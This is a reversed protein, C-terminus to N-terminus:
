AEIMFRCRSPSEATPATPFTEPFRVHEVFGIGMAGNVGRAGSLPVGGDDLERADAGAGEGAHHQGVHARLTTVKSRTPRSSSDSIRHCPRPGALDDLEVQLVLRRDRFNEIKKELASRASRLSEDRRSPAAEPETGVDHQRLIWLQDVAAHGAPALLARQRLSGAVSM